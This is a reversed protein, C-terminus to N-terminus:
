LYNMAVQYNELDSLENVKLDYLALALADSSDPSRGILEKIKVKPTLITKGNQNILYTTNTLEEKIEPDEIYFGTRIKEALNFYMNARANAYCEEVAKEGFNIGRVELSPCSMKLMDHLGNGFGGTVDIRIQSVNWKNILNKAVTHLEFTNAKEVKVKDLIGTNDCVIFVNYDAGSGACDIGMYRKGYSEQKITPFDKNLIVAFDVETDLFEGLLQQRFMPTGEGYKLIQARKYDDSTFPNDFTTAHIVKVDPRKCLDRFWKFKVDSSPSSILRIKGQKIHQGRMRDTIYYYLEEPTYAAEDIIAANIDTFGLISTPNEATAGFIESGNSLVFKKGKTYSYKINWEILIKEIERFLVETLARYNQAAAIIRSKNQTAELVVWLAAVRSKGAGVGTTLIVTPEKSYSLFKRQFASVPVKEIRLKNTNTLSM